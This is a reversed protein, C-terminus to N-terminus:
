EKMFETMNPRFRLPLMQRQLSPNIREKIAISECFAKFWGACEEQEDSYHIKWERIEEPTVERFYCPNEKGGIEVSHVVMRNRGKDFIIFNETPLRDRFHEALPELIDNKPEIQSFLIGNKLESFRLFGRLHMLENNTGRALEMVRMVYPNSLAMLTRKGLKRDMGEAITHYVADAKDSLGSAMAAAIWWVNEEGFERRITRLVKRAKEESVSVEQYDMFLEPEYLNELVLKTEEKRFHNEYAQYVGSLIGQM